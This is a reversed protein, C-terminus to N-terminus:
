PRTMTVHLREGELVGQWGPICVGSVAALLISRHRLPWYVTGDNLGGGM